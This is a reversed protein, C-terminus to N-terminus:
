FVRKLLNEVKLITILRDERKGIGQMLEESEGISDPVPDINSHKIRVAENLKDIVFGAVEDKYNVVLYRTDQDQKIAPLGFKLRLNILPFISGRLSFVGMVYDPTGPVRTFDVPKIIEKVSLIPLAFEESGVIFSILQLTDEDFEAETAASKKNQQEKFVEKLQENM